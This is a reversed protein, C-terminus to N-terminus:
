RSAGVEFDAVLAALFADRHALSAAEARHEIWWAQLERLAAKDARMYVLRVLRSLRGSPISSEAAM